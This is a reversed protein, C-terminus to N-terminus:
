PTLRCAPRQRIAPGGRWNGRDVHHLVNELVGEWGHALCTQLADEVGMTGILSAALRRQYDRNEAAVRGTGFM